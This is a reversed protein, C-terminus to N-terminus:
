SIMKRVGLITVAERKRRETFDLLHVPQLLCVDSKNENIAAPVSCVFVVTWSTNAVQEKKGLFPFRGAPICDTVKIFVHIPKYLVVAM